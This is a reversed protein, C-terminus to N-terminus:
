DLYDDRKWFLISPCERRFIRLAHTDDDDGPRGVCAAARRISRVGQAGRIARGRMWHRACTSKERMRPTTHLAASFPFGESPPSDKNIISPPSSAEGFVDFSTRPVGKIEVRVLVETDTEEWTHTPTIFGMPPSRTHVRASVARLFTPFSTFTLGLSPDVFFDLQPSRKPLEM